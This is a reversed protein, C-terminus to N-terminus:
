LTVVRKLIEANYKQLTVTLLIHVQVHKQYEEQEMELANIDPNFTVGSLSKIFQIRKWWRRITKLHNQVNSLMMRKGFNENIAHAARNLVSAKFGTPGKNGKQAQEALYNLLFDTLESNWRMNHSQKSTANSATREVKM